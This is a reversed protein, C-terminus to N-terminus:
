RPVSHIPNKRAFAECFQLVIGYIVLLQLLQPLTGAYWYFLFFTGLFFLQKIAYRDNNQKRIRCFILMLESVLYCAFAINIWMLPPSIGLISRLNESPAPALDLGFLVAVSFLLFTVVPKLEKSTPLSFRSKEETPDQYDRWNNRPIAKIRVLPKQHSNRKAM